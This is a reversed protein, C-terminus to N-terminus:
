VVVPGFEDSIKDHLKPFEFNYSLVQTQLKVPRCSELLTLSVTLNQLELFFHPRTNLITALNQKGCFLAQMNMLSFQLAVSLKQSPIM